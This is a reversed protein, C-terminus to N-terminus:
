HKVFNTIYKQKIEKTAEEASKFTQKFMYFGKIGPDFYFAYYENQYDFYSGVINDTKSEIIRSVYKKKKIYTDM